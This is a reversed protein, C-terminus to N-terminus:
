KTEPAHTDLWKKVNVPAGLASNDRKSYWLGYLQGWPVSDRFAKLEAVEARLTRFTDEVTAANYDSVFHLEEGLMYPTAWEESMTEDGRRHNRENIADGWKVPPYTYEHDDVQPGSGAQAVADMYSDWQEQISM